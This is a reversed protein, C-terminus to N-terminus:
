SFHCPAAQQQPLTHEVFCSMVWCCSRERHLKASALHTQTGMGQRRQVELVLLEARDGANREELLEGQAQSLAEPRQLDTGHEEVGADQQRHDMHQMAVALQALKPEMGTVWQEPTGPGRRRGSSAVTLRAKLAGRVRLTDTAPLSQEAGQHQPM